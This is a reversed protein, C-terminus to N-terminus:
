SATQAAEATVAEVGEILESDGDAGNQVVLDPALLAGLRENAADRRGKVQTYIELTFAAKTHGIQRMTYATDAGSEAMLTAYTRRLGHFTVDDPILAWGEAELAVNAQKIKRRILRNLACRERPRGRKLKGRESGPFIFDAPRTWRARAKYERLQQQLQRNLDVTRNGAETKSVPVRLTGTALNVDEWRLACLESVRLGGAQLATSILVKHEPSPRGRSTEAVKLLALVQRSDMASRRPRQPTLKRRRTVPNAALHGYEVAEELIQGLRTLTRNISSNSLPRDVEPDKRQRVKSSTYRDIEEATIQDLRHRAFHPLLHLKLDQEYQEVTRERWDGEHRHFWASAFEHFTLGGVDETPTPDVAGPRWVGRRVQEMVYALEREADERTFGEASNGVTLHRRKGLATFRLMYATGKKGERELVEGTARRGM